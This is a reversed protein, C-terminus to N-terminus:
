TLANKAKDVLDSAARAADDITEKVKASAQDAQGEAKLDDNGTLDGVAEKVRGTADEIKPDM